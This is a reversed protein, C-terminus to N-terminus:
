PTPDPPRGRGLSGEARARLYAYIADIYPAVNADGAFGQMASNGAVRGSLVVERFAEYVIVRDVLSPAFSSGVGDPGHCHNCGGHYRRYGQLIAADSQAAAVDLSLFACAAFALLLPPCYGPARM